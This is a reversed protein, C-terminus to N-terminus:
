GGAAVPESLREGIKLFWDRLDGDPDRENILDITMRAAADTSLRRKVNSVKKRKKEENLEEWSTPSGSAAHVAQAVLEPVDDFDGFDVEIDIRLERYSEVIARPHLYNEIERKATLKAYSGDGQANVKNCEEQYKPPNGEDRDYLHVQPIGLNRLYHNNVWDRLTGGGLVIFAIRPDSSLDPILPDNSHFIRSIHKLFDVDTPGEVGVLVQVRKDPTVGLDEAIREYVDDDGFEIVRTGGEGRRIHVLADTPLMAALHPVHTTLIVQTNEHEALDMLARVILRQNTPHQSTEPEEVAYIVGPSAVEGQRREAEARFFNLLVLRRVGSGRKNIPIGRDSLLTLRFLGEWKPESRFEPTLESALSPDMEQLKALTRRAVELARNQVRDKIAALDREVEKLSQAIAVKLPDQVEPDDDKSPRDSQFLAYLPLYRQLETWVKKADEKDLPIEQESLRLDPCSNWIARRMSPNKRMDVSDTPIGRDSLRKRLEQQKLQLLDNYGEATPHVAIAVVQERPNKNSCDYLKHIELHGSSNLLYEDHLTTHADSDIVVSDPLHSFVCGIRVISSEADVCLDDPQIKVIESNFFIELAELITSKGVDNRGTIATLDGIPIRVRNKYSRFNELVVAELKM